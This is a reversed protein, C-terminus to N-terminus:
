ECVLPMGVDVFAARPFSVDVDYMAAVRAAELDLVGAFWSVFGLPAETYLLIGDLLDGVAPPVSLVGIGEVFLSTSNNSAFCRDSSEGETGGLCSNSAGSYSLIMLGTGIRGERDIRILAGIIAALAIGSGIFDAWGIFLM